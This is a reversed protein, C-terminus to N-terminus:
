PLTTPGGPRSTGAKGWSGRDLVQPASDNRPKPLDWLHTRGGSLIRSFLNSTYLQTSKGQATFKREVDGKPEEHRKNERLNEGLCLVRVGVGHWALFGSNDVLVHVGAGHWALVGSNRCSSSRSCWCWALDPVKVPLTAVVLDVLPM